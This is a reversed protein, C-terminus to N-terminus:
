QTAMLPKLAAAVDLSSRAMDEIAEQLTDGKGRLESGNRTKVDITVREDGWVTVSINTRGYSSIDALPRLASVVAKVDTLIVPKTSVEGAFASASCLFAFAVVIMMKM